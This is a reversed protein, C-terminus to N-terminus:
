VHKGSCLSDVRSFQPGSHRSHTLEVHVICADIRLCKGPTSARGRSPLRRLCVACYEQLCEHAVVLLVPPELIICEGAKLDRTAELFRGQQESQRVVVCSQEVM